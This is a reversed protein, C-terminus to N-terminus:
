FMLKQWSVLKQPDLLMVAIVSDLEKIKKQLEKLVKDDLFGPVRLFYDINKIEEILFGNDCRNSILTFRIDEQEDDTAFVPFFSVSNKKLDKIELNESRIFNVLLKKNLAWSLRYDNEHSAIGILHFDPEPKYSLKQNKKKM